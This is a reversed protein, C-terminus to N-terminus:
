WYVVNDSSYVEPFVRHPEESFPDNMRFRCIQGSCQRYCSGDLFQDFVYNVRIYDGSIRIGTVELTEIHVQHDSDAKLNMSSFGKVDEEILWTLNLHTFRYSYTPIQIICGFDGQEIERQTNLHDIQFNIEGVATGGIEITLKDKIRM